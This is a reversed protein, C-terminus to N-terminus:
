EEEDPMRKNYHREGLLMKEQKRQKGLLQRMRNLCEKNQKETFFNVIEEVMLREDKAIRRKKRSRQFKTAIKNREKADKAFELEHMYDQVRKDEDNVADLNYTYSANLEDIWNLFDSITDSPLIVEKTAM